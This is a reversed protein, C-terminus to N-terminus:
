PESLCGKLASMIRLLTVIFVCIDAEPPTPKPRPPRMDRWRL